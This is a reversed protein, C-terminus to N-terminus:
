VRLHQVSAHVRACRPHTPTCCRTTRTARTWLSTPTTSCRPLATTRCCSRPAACPLAAGAPLRMRARRQATALRASRRRRTRAQTAAPLWSVRPWRLTSRYPLPRTLAAPIVTPSPLASCVKPLKRRPTIHSGREADLKEKVKQTRYANYDFPAALAAAKGYLRNDIFFGALCCMDRAMLRPLRLDVGCTTSITVLTAGHMYARLVSTGIASTLGLRELEPRTVFRYDDYLTSQPMAPTHRNTPPAHLNPTCVCALETGPWNGGDRRDSKGPLRVVQLVTQRQTLERMCAGHTHEGSRAPASAHRPAPGLSPVFFPAM